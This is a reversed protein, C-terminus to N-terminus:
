PAVGMQGCDLDALIEPYEFIKYFTQLTRLTPIFNVVLFEVM